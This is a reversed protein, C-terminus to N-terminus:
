QQNGERAAQRERYTKYYSKNGVLAVSFALCCFLLAFANALILLANIVMTLFVFVETLIAQFIPLFGEAAQRVAVAEDVNVGMFTATTMLFSLTTLLLVIALMWSGCHLARLRLEKTNITIM